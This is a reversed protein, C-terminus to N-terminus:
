HAPQKASAGHAAAAERQQTAARAARAEARAHRLAEDAAATGGDVDAANAEPLEGLAASLVMAMAGAAQQAASSQPAARM